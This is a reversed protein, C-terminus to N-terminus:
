GEKGPFWPDDNIGRHEFLPGHTTGYLSVGGMAIQYFQAGECEVLDDESGEWGISSAVILAATKSDAYIPAVWVDREAGAGYESADDVVIALYLM